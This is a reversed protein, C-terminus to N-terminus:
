MQRILSMKNRIVNREVCRLLTVETMAHTANLVKSGVTLPITLSKVIFVRDIKFLKIIASSNKGTNYDRVQSKKVQNKSTQGKHVKEETGKPILASNMSQIDSVNSAALEMGQSLDMAQKFTIDRESLLHRQITDDNVGCVIRDRLM